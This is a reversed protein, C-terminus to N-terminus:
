VPDVLARTDTRTPRERNNAFAQQLHGTRM